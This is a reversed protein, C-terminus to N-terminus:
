KESTLKQKIRERATASLKQPVAETLDAQHEHAASGLFRIQKGYRRCWVCILLHLWLGLRKSRPLPHDLAESQARGAARCDPSLNACTTKFKSWFNM